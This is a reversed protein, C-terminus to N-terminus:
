DASIAPRTSRGVANGSADVSITETTGTQRDYVVVQSGSEFAVFRGDASIAALRSERDAQTSDSAVSVLETTGPSARADHAPMLLAIMPVLLAAVAALIALAIFVSTKM